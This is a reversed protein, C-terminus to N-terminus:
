TPKEKETFKGKKEKCAKKSLKTWGKGKCSNQGACTTGKGACEGKSKCSNIGHCEGVVEKTTDDAQAQSGSLLLGALAATLFISKQNIM